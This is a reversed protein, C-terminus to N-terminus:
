RDRGQQVGLFEATDGTSQWNRGRLQLVQGEADLVRIGDAGQNGGTVQVAGPVSGLSRSAGGVQYAVASTAEGSGTLVVINTDDVWAADVPTTTLLLQLSSGLGVPVNDEGRIIGAVVLEPAGVASVMTLLLRAGDRSVAVSVVRADPALGNPIVGGSGDLAFVAIAAASTSPVSWVFGYPDLAPRVLNPREDLLPVADGTSATGYVGGEARFAAIRQGFVTAANAGANVLRQSLVAISTIGEAGPYGFADGTGILVSGDVSPNAIAASAPGSTPVGGGISILVSAVGLTAALQQRMRSLQLEDAQAADVSLYVTASTGSVVVGEPELSTGEPFESVVSQALWEEPGSLLLRVTRENTTTRVPVWRVDPVLYTYGADFFYLSESRFVVDFSNDTLVIGDPAASIRWEGDVQAFSYGLSQQSTPTETYRGRDDVWASSEFVYELDTGVGPVIEAPGRRITTQANPDWDAAFEPTLFQQAIAYNGAPSRVAQMFDALLTPPDSGPSPGDPQVEFDPLVEDDDIVGGVQVSGSSPIGVCGALLLAAVIGPVLLLRRALEAM